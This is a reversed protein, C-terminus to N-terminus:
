EFSITSKLPLTEMDHVKKEKEERLKSTLCQLWEAATVSDMNRIIHYCLKWDGFSMSRTILALDIDMQVLKFKPATNLKRNLIVWRVGRFTILIFHHGLDLITLV